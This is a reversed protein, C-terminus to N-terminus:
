GGGAIRLRLPLRWVRFHPPVLVPRGVDFVDGSETMTLAGGEAPGALESRRVERVVGPSRREGPLVYGGPGFVAQELEGPEPVADLAIVPVAAGGGPPTYSAAAGFEEFAADIAEQAPSPM